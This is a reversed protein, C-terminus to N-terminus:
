RLYPHVKELENQIRDWSRTLGDQSIGFDKRGDAHHFELAESCRDYGCNSCKGGKYKVAKARMMKRRKAVAKKLYEARDAYTRTEPM